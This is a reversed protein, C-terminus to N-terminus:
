KNDYTCDYTYSYRGTRVYGEVSTASSYIYKSGSVIMSTYENTTRYCKNGSISYGSPCSYSVPDHVVCKHDSTLTANADECYYEGEIAKYIYCKTNAGTGEVIYGTPCTYTKGTSYKSPNSTRYCINGGDTYGNPCTSGTGPTKIPTASEITKKYCKTNTGTGEQTYGYPCSYTYTTKKIPNASVTTTKTCKTNTGSGSQTYGEPCSYKYTRSYHEYAYICSTTGFLTKCTSGTQILKELEREYVALKTASDFVRDPNGWPTYGKIYDTEVTNKKTCKTNAGTGSKDYGDPCSYTDTATKNYGTYEKVEKTCKTNAGTGSQTYGEPCSVVYVTPMKELYEYCKGNKLEGVKCYLTETGEHEIAPTYVKQTSGNTKKADKTTTSHVETANVTENTAKACRGDNTLAYGAPCAYTKKVYEYEYTYRCHSEDNTITCSVNGSGNCKTPCTTNTNTNTNSHSNTNTNTNNTPEDIVTNTNTNTNTNGGNVKIVNIKSDSKDGCKLVSTIKYENESSKTVLIYSENADCATNGYYLKESLGLAYMEKLSVKYTEGVNEPLNRNFYSNATEHMTNLNNNFMKTNRSATHGKNIIWIIVFIIIIIAIIGLIFNLLRGNNKKEKTYM